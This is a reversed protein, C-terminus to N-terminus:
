FLNYMFFDRRVLNHFLNPPRAAYLKNHNDPKRCYSSTSVPLLDIDCNVLKNYFVMLSFNLMSPRVRCWLRVCKKLGVTGSQGVRTKPPAPKRICMYEGGRIMALIELSIM